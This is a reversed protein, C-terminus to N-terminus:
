IQFLRDLKEFHKQAKEAAQSVDPIFKHQTAEKYKEYLFEIQSKKLEEITTYPIDPILDDIVHQMKQNYVIPLVRKGYLWGLIMAHYRSAVIFKAEAIFGVAEQYTIDPYNYILLGKEGSFHKVISCIIENDRQEKCFGLIVVKEGRERLRQVLVILANEYAREAEIDSFGDKQLAIVSILVYNRIGPKIYSRTDYAFLIDPGYEIEMGPFLACSYKDRFCIYKADRFCMEYFSRYGENHFPGFNCGIVYPHLQYYIIENKYFPGIEFAKNDVEIFLSGSILINHDSHHSLFEFCRYMSYKEKKNLIKRCHNLTWPVLNIFRFIWKMWVADVSFYKLNEISSFNKRFRKEGCMVFNVAPYRSCLVHIFLDDGLNGNVYAKICTNFLTM